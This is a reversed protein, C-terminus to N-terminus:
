EGTQRQDIVRLTMRMSEVEQPDEGDLDLEDQLEQRYDLGV